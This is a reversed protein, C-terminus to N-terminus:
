AETLVKQKAPLKTTLLPRVVFMEFVYAVGL